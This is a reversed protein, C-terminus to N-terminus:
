EKDIAIRGCGPKAIIGNFATPTSSIITVLGGINGMLMSAPQSQWGSFQLSLFSNAPNLVGHAVFRGSANGPAKISVYVTINSPGREDFQVQVPMAGQTCSYFSGKWNGSLTRQLVPAEAAPQPYTPAPVVEASPERSSEVARAPLPTVTLNNTLTTVGHVKAAMEAAMTRLIHDSVSGSLVVNGHSVDIRVTQNRLQPNAAYATRISKAIQDDPTAVALDNVVSSVPCAVLGAIEAARTRELANGVTGSLIVTGNAVDVQITDGKLDEDNTLRDRLRAALQEAGCAVPAASAAVTPKPAGAPSLRAAIPPTSASKAEGSSPLFHLLGLLLAVVALSGGVAAYVWNPAGRKRAQIPELPHECLECVQEQGPGVTVVKRTVANECAAGFNTCLYQVEPM